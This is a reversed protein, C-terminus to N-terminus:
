SKLLSYSGGFGFADQSGVSQGALHLFVGHTSQKQPGFYYGGGVSLCKLWLRISKWNLGFNTFEAEAPRV